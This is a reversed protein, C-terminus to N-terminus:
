SAGPMYLDRCKDYANDGRYDGASGASFDTIRVCQERIM